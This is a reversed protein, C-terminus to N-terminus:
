YRKSSLQASFLDLLLLLERQTQGMTGRTQGWREERRVWQGLMGSIVVTHASDTGSEPRFDDDNDDDDDEMSRRLLPKSAESQVDWPQPPGAGSGRGGLGALLNVILVQAQGKILNYRKGGRAQPASPVPPQSLPQAFQTRAM